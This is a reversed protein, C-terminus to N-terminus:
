NEGVTIKIIKGDKKVKSVDSIGVGVVWFVDHGNALVILKDRRHLPVKRDSLYDSLRKTGKMGLPVIRDGAQRHRFQAGFITDADFHECGAAYDPKSVFRCDFVTHNVAYRGPGCFSVLANNYRVGNNKGIMLKDYVVAAFIGRGIDIRKGSQAGQALAMVSQMHVSEIDKLGTFEDIALRVVRKQVAVPLAAWAALDIYAGDPEFRTCGASHAAQRLADEDERLLASARAMNEAAAANVNKLRPLVEHRIYNRAYATDDNTSDHRYAIGCDRAYDEIQRRAVNLMPRIYRGRREPIGGLGHLGAGRVLHLLVTEAADDMHHATAIHDADQRDLFAYRAHRAATEVSQGTEEAIRPVDACHCVCKVGYERCRAQVFAMDDRSADGRFGHEFHYAVGTIEMDQRLRCVCYLLAMSDIGGSVAVGLTDGRRVGLRMLNKRIVDDM